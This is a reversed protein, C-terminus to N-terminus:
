SVEAKEIPSVRSNHAQNKELSQHHLGIQQCVYCGIGADSKKLEMIEKPINVYEMM